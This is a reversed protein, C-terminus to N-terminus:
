KRLQSHPKLTDIKLRSVSYLLGDVIKDKPPTSRDISYRRTIPCQVYLFRTAYKKLGNEQLNYAVFANFHNLNTKVDKVIKISTQSQDVLLVKDRDVTIRKIFDGGHSDIIMGIHKDDPENTRVQITEAFCSGSALSALFIPLALSKFSM